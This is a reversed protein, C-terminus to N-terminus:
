AKTLLLLFTAVTDALPTTVAFFAPEQLIVTTVWLPRFAVTFTLTALAGVRTVSDRVLREM